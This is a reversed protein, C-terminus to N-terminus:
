NEEAIVPKRQTRQRPRACPLCERARLLQCIHGLACTEIGRDVMFTKLDSSIMKM